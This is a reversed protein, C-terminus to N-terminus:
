LLYFYLLKIVMTLTMLNIIIERHHAMDKEDLFLYVHIQIYEM